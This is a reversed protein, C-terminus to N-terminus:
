RKTVLMLIKLDINIIKPFLNLMNIIYKNM